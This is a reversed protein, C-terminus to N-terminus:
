RDKESMRDEATKLRDKESMRDEATKLRDKESMRKLRYKRQWPDESRQLEKEKEIKIRRIQGILNEDNPRPNKSIFKANQGDKILVKSKALLEAKKNPDTENKAQAIL